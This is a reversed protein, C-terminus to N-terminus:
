SFLKQTCDFGTERAPPRGARVWPSSDATGGSGAAVLNEKDDDDALSTAGVEYAYDHWPAAGARMAATAAAADGATPDTRGEPRVAASARWEASDQSPLFPIPALDRAPLPHGAVPDTRPRGGDSSGDRPNTM